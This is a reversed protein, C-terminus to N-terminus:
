TSQLTATTTSTAAQLQKCTLERHLHDQSIDQMLIHGDQIQGLPPQEETTAEMRHAQELAAHDPAAVERPPSHQATRLTAQSFIDQRHHDRWM